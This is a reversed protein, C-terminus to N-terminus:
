SPSCSEILDDIHGISLCICTDAAGYYVKLTGDDEPIVGCRFVVNGIDGIREYLERPMLVPILSRGLVKSPDGPVFRDAGREM